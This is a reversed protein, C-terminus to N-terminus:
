EELQRIAFVEFDEGGEYENLLKNMMAFDVLLNDVEIQPVHTYGKSLMVDTDTVESFQIDAAKLKKEIINCKPCHTTYVTVAM